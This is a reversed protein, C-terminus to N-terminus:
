SLDQNNNYHYAPVDKYILTGPKYTLTDSTFGTEVATTKRGDTTRDM